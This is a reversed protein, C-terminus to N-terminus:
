MHYIILSRVHNPMNKEVEEKRKKVSELQKGIRERDALWREMDNEMQAVNKMRITFETIKREFIEWKQKARKSVAPSRGVKSTNAPNTSTPTTPPEVTTTTSAAGNDIIFTSNANTNASGQYQLQLNNPRNRTSRSTINGSIPKAQKRM